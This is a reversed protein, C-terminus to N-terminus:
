KRVLTKYIQGTQIISTKTEFIRNFTAFNCNERQSWKALKLPDSFLSLNGFGRYPGDKKENIYESSKFPRLKIKIKNVIYLISPTIVDASLKLIKLGVTYQRSRHIQKCKFKVFVNHKNPNLSLTGTLLKETM